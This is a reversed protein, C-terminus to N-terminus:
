SRAVLDQDHEGGPEGVVAPDPGKRAARDAPVEAKAM